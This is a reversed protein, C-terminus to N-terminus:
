GNKYVWRGEGIYEHHKASHMHPCDWRQCYNCVTKESTGIEKKDGFIRQKLTTM